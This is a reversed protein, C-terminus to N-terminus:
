AREDPPIGFGSLWDAVGDPWLIGDPWPITEPGERFAALMQEMVAASSESCNAGYSLGAAEMFYAAHEKHGSSELRVAVRMQALAVAAAFDIGLRGSLHALPRVTLADLDAAPLPYGAPMPALEKPVCNAALLAPQSEEMAARLAAPVTPYLIPRGPNVAVLPLMWDLVAPLPVAAGHLRTLELARNFAPRMTLLILV